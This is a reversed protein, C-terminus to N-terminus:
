NQNKLSQIEVHKKADSYKHEEVLHKLEDDKQQHKFEHHEIVITMNKINENKGTFSTKLQQLAKEYEAVKKKLHKKNNKLTKIIYNQNKMQKKHDNELVDLM